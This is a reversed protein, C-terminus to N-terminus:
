GVLLVKLVDFVRVFTKVFVFVFVFVLGVVLGGARNASIAGAVSTRTLAAASGFCPAGVVLSTRLTL